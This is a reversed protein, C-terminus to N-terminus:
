RCHRRRRIQADVGTINRRFRVMEMSAGFRLALQQNSVGQAVLPVLGERPIQLTAGLWEAEEENGEPYERLVFPTGPLRVFRQPEHGLIVHALEHMINSETRPASHTSNCVVAAVDEVFVTVASWGRNDEILLQRVDSASLGPVHEPSVVLAGIHNALEHAPLRDFPRLSLASRFEVSIQECETKFGRRM